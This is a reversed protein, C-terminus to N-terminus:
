KSIEYALVELTINDKGGNELALDLLRAGIKQIDQVEEFVNKIDIEPVMDTLGDSCLLIKDGDKLKVNGSNIEIKSRGIMSTIINNKPHVRMEEKTIENKLFKGWLLNHDSSLQKLDKRIQYIRSDGVSVFYLRKSIIWAFVLTTGMMSHSIQRQQESILAQNARITIERM